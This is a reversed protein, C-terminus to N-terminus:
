WLAEVICFLKYYNSKWESENELWQAREEWFCKWPRWQFYPKFICIQTSRFGCQEIQVELSLWGHELKGM